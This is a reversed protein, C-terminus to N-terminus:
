ELIDRKIYTERISPPVYAHLWRYGKWIGSWDISDEEIYEQDDRAINIWPVFSLTIPVMEMLVDNINSLVSTRTSETMGSSFKFYIQLAESELNDTPRVHGPLSWIRHVGTITDAEGFYLVCLINCDLWYEYTVSLNGGTSAKGLALTERDVFEATTIDGTDDSVSITSTLSAAPPTLTVYKQYPIGTITGDADDTSIEDWGFVLTNEYIGPVPQTTSEKVDLTDDVDKTGDVYVYYYTGSSVGSFQIQKEGMTVYEYRHGRRVKRYAPVVLTDRDGPGLAHPIHQTDLDWHIPYEWQFTFINGLNVGAYCAKLAQLSAQVPGKESVEIARKVAEKINQGWYDSPIPLTMKDILAKKTTDYSTVETEFYASDGTTTYNDGVKTDIYIDQKSQGMGELISAVELSFLYHLLLWHYVDFVLLNSIGSSPGSAQYTNTTEYLVPVIVSFTGGSSATARLVVNNNRTLTIVEGVNAGTGEITIEEFYPTAAEGIDYVLHDHYTKLRHFTNSLAPSLSITLAM